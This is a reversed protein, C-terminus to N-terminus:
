QPVEEMRRSFTATSTITILAEKLSGEALAAEVAALSQDDQEVEHRGMSFRLWQRAFCAVAEPSEAVARALAAGGVFSGDPLGLVPVGGSADVPLGNELTRHRGIADFDEFAFGIPDLLTHCGSCSPDSSHQEWRQRTTADPDLPPPSVMLEPPPPPLEECLIQELVFAGRRVPSTSDFTSTAALVSPHTLVGAREEPLTTRVAESGGMLGYLFASRPDPWTYDATLFTELSAAENYVLEEVFRESEAVMGAAVDEDFDAFQNPDRDLEIVRNLWLWQGFFRQITAQGCPLDVVRRVQATIEAPTSLAGSAVAERLEADPPSECLAYSLRAAQEAPTLVFAGPLEDDPTGIEVLYLFSPNAFIAEFVMMYAEAYDGEAVAILGAIREREADALPRRFALPALRDVIAEACAERESAFSAGPDAPGDVDLATIEVTFNGSGNIAYDLVGPGTEDVVVTTVYVEDAPMDDITAVTVGNFAVTMDIGAGDVIQMHLAVDYTGPATFSHAYSATAETAYELRLTDPDGAPVVAWDPGGTLGAGPVAVQSALALPPLIEDACEAVVDDLRQESILTAAAERASAAFAELHAQSVTQGNVLRDYTLGFSDPPAASLSTPVLGVIAEYSNTLEVVSLRRTTWSSTGVPPTEGDDNGDDDAGTGSGEGSEDGANPGTSSGATAGDTDKDAAGSRDRCGSVILATAVLATRLRSM